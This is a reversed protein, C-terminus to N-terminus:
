FLAEVARLVDLGRDVSARDRGAGGNVTDRAGDRAVLTDRGAEGLMVDSGAGGVLRDNGPGGVLRDNGGLGRIVDSGGFGCIVDRRATGRLVNSGNTGRVTCGGDDDLILARGHHTAVTANTAGSLHVYFAENPEARRDGIVEVSVTKATEGPAFAVMGSAPHFDAHPTATGDPWRVAEYSVTVATAAAASLSIRLSADRTGSNGEQARTGAISVTPTGGPTADGPPPDDPYQAGAPAICLLAFAAPLLVAIRRM